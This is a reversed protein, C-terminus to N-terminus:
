DFWNSPIIFKGQRKSLEVLTVNNAVPPQPTDIPRQLRGKSFTPVANAVPESADKPIPESLVVPPSNIALLSTIGAVLALAKKSSLISNVTMHAIEFPPPVQRPKTATPSASGSQIM